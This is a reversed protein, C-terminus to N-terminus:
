SAIKRLLESHPKQLCGAWTQTGARCSLLRTVKLSNVLVTEAEKEEEDASLLDQTLM